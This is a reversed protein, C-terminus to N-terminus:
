SAAAISPPARGPGRAFADNLIAALRGAIARRHFRELGEPRFPLIPEGRQFSHAIRELAAAIAEPERPHVVLGLGHREVLRSLEGEPALALCPRSAGMIDFIKGSIIARNGPIDDVIILAAHSEALLRLAEEHSHPGLRRVMFLSPDDFLARETDVIRGVFRVDFLAALAPSRESLLRLAAFLGRPSTHWFTTGAYTLVIKGGPAQGRPPNTEAIHNFDDPDFGNTLTFIRGPDLHPYRRLLNERFADTATLVRAARRVLRPELADIARALLPGGHMEYTAATRWEDRYDLVFPARSLPGLLFPSFPPGSVLVADVEASLRRLAPAAAPLWLIQPDPVLAASAFRALARRAPALPGMSAAGRWVAAKKDYSPELTRAHVVRAGRGLDRLLTEDRLPVSPNEATLVWPEVGFAPLYKVLKAVRQVSVGGAPPFAYSVILLRLTSGGNGEFPGPLVIARAGGRPL